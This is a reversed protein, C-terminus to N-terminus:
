TNQGSLNSLRQSSSMNNNNGYKTEKLSKRVKVRFMQFSMMLFLPSRHVKVKLVKMRLTRKKSIIEISEM